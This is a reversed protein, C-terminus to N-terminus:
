HCEQLSEILALVVGMKGALKWSVKMFDMAVEKARSAQAGAVNAWVLTTGCIWAPLWVFQVGAIAVAAARAASTQM